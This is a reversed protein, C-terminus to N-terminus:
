NQDENNDEKSHESINAPPLYALRSLTTHPNDRIVQRAPVQGLETSAQDSAANTAAKISPPRNNEIDGDWTDQTDRTTATATAISRTDHHPTPRPHATEPAARNDAPTPAAAHPKRGRHTHSKLVYPEETPLSRLGPPATRDRYTLFWDRSNRRRNPSQRTAPNPTGPAAVDAVLTLTSAAAPPTKM